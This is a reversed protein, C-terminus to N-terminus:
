PDSFNASDRVLGDDKLLVIRLGGFGLDTKIHGFFAGNFSRPALDNLHRELSVLFSCSGLVDHVVLFVERFNV